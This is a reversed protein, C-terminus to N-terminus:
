AALQTVAGRNLAEAILRAAANLAREADWATGFPSLRRGIEHVSLGQRYWYVVTPLRTANRGLDFAVRDPLGASWVATMSAAAHVAVTRLDGDLMDVQLRERVEEPTYNKRTALLRPWSFRLKSSTQSGSHFM